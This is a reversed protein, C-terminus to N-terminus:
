LRQENVIKLTTLYKVFNWPVYNGYSHVKIGATVILESVSKNYSIYVFMSALSIHLIAFL